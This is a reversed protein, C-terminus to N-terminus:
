LQFVSHYEQQKSIRHSGHQLIIKAEHSAELFFILTGYIQLEILFYKEDIWFPPNLFIKNFNLGRREKAIKIVVKYAINFLNM